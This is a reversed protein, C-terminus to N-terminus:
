LEGKRQKDFWSIDQASATVTVLIVVVVCAIIYRVNSMLVVMARACAPSLLTVVAAATLFRGTDFDRCRVKKTKLPQMIEFMVIIFTHAVFIDHM